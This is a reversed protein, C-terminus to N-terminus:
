AAASMKAQFHFCILHSDRMQKNSPPRWCYFDFGLIEPLQLYLTRFWLFFCLPINWGLNARRLSVARGLQAVEKKSDDFSLQFHRLSSDKLKAGLKALHKEKCYRLLEEFSAPTSIHAGAAVSSHAKRSPRECFCNTWGTSFYSAVTILSPWAPKEQFNEWTCCSVFYTKMANPSTCTECTPKSLHPSVSPPMKKCIHRKFQQGRLVDHKQRLAPKRILLNRFPTSATWTTTEKDTTRKRMSERQCLSQCSVPPGGTTTPSTAALLCLSRPPPPPTIALCACFSLLCYFLANVGGLVDEKPM